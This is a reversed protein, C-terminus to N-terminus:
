QHFCVTTNSNGTKLEMTQMKLTFGSKKKEELNDMVVKTANAPM